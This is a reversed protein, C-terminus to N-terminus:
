TTMRLRDLIEEALAEVGGRTCDIRYAAQEYASRRALFLREFADRDAALPRRGDAPVRAVV